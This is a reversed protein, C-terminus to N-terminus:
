SPDELPEFLPVRLGAFVPLHDSGLRPGNFAEVAAMDTSHWVYHTRILPPLLDTFVPWTAGLGTAAERFSDDMLVALDSYILSHQSMNFDGAIIYPLTEQRVAEVLARIEQNRLTEDYNILINIYQNGASPLRWDDYDLIPRSFHVNYVAIPQGNLDLEARFYREGEGTVEVPYRSIIAMDTLGNAVRVAHTLGLDDLAPREGPYDRPVEQMVLVDVRIDTLWAELMDLDTRDDHMNYTVVQLPIGTNPGSSKAQFFPGFWVVGLLALLGLRAFMQWQGTLLLLPLLVFLPAFTYVVFANLLTVWWLSDGTLLRIVLYGIMLILYAGSAWAIWRSVPGPPRAGPSSPYLNTTTM